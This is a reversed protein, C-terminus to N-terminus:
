ALASYFLAASASDAKHLSTGCPERGGQPPPIPLPTAAYESHATVGEGVRGRLPPLSNVAYAAVNGKGSFRM